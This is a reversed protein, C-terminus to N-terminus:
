CRCAPFLHLTIGDRGKWRIIWKVNTFHNLIPQCSQHPSINFGRTFYTPAKSKSSLPNDFVKDHCFSGQYLLMFCILIEELDTPSNGRVIFYLRINSSDNRMMVRWSVTQRSNLFLIRQDHHKLVCKTTWLFNHFLKSKNPVNDQRKSLLLLYIKRNLLRLSVCQPSLNRM